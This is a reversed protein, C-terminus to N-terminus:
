KINTNYQKKLNEFLQNLVGYIYQMNEDYEFYNDKDIQKQTDSILKIHAYMDNVFKEYKDRLKFFKIYLNIIIYVAILFLLSIGIIIIYELM